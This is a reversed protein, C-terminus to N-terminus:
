YIIKELKEKAYIKQYPTMPLSIAKIYYEKAKSINWLHYYRDGLATYLYSKQWKKTLKLLIYWAQNLKWSALLLGAQWYDCVYNEKISLKEFCKQVYFISLEQNQKYLSYDGWSFLPKYFVKEFFLYFDVSTIWKKWLLKQMTKMFNYSDWIKDYALALYRLKDIEYEPLFSQKFYVISDTYNGLWFNAIWLLFNYKNENSPDTDKLKKLYDTAVSWNWMIFHSYALIQYPLIYKDNYKLIQIAVQQAIKFYGFRLIHLDILANYYYNPIDRQQKKLNEIEKLNKIFNNYKNTSLQKRYKQANPIQYQLFELLWFYFNKDDKELYWKQELLLIVNQTQQIYDKNDYTLNKNNLLINVITKWPLYLHAQNNFKTLYEYAKDFMFHDALYQVLNALIKKDKTRERAKELQLSEFEYLSNKQNIMQRMQQITYKWQQLQDHYINSLNIQNWIQDLKKSVNQQQSSNQSFFAPDSIKQKINSQPKLSNQKSNQKLNFSFINNVNLKVFNLSIKQFANIKNWILFISWFFILFIKVIILLYKKERQKM